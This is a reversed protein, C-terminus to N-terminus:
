AHRRHSKRVVFPRREGLGNETSDPRSPRKPNLEDRLWQFFVYILFICGLLPLTSLILIPM